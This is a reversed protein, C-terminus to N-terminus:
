SGRTRLRPVNFNISPQSFAPRDANQTLDELSTIPALEIADVPSAIEVTQINLPAPKEAHALTIWDVVFVFTSTISICLRLLHNTIKNM